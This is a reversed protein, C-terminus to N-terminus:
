TTWLLGCLENKRAGADLAVAYLAATQPGAAKATALFTRAEDATWCNIRADDAAKSRPRRPAHDLDVAPNVTLLKDKVAKRLARRLVTHHVPGSGAPVGAYYAELDSGRVKQLALGAIEAKLLHNEVIGSYRVFTAPRVTPKVLEIWRTLWQGLTLKSPDVYADNRVAGLLDTLKGEAQKKTGYFTHWKQRRKTRGTAPDLVEGLDLIISWSGKYRKKLSGRM